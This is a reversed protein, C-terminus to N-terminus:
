DRGAVRTIDKEGIDLPFINAPSGVRVPRFVCKKQCLRSCYRAEGCGVCVRTPWPPRRTHYECGRWACKQAAKRMEKEYTEAEEEENLGIALGLERWTVALRACRRRSAAQGRGPLDRLAKLTPYWEEKMNKRFSKKFVNKGNLTVTANAAAIFVQIADVCTAVM